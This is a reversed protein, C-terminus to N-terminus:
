PSTRSEIKDAHLRINGDATASVSGEIEFPLDIGKHITGKQILRGGKIEASVNKIPAGQYALVYSNM